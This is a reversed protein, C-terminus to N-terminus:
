LMDLIKYMDEYAKGFDPNISNFRAKLAKMKRIFGERDKNIVLDNWADAKEKFKKEIEALNPLNMQLSAYLVPDESIVSETLTSLLKFTIGSAVNTQRLRNFRLITDGAVIAIFHSLGLVVTMIEDHEQPSILNVKADRVELFQKAKEAISKENESTPTLLFSRNAIDKAGPGFMPHMGLINKTNIHKHMAEMPLVKVSTIDIVIQEGRISKGIEEAVAEFNDIPVSILVMDAHKVAEKNNTTFEVGLEKGAKLLKNQDRGTIIVQHGEQLAFRAFWRGMNGSGGIIAINM